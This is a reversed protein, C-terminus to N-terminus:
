LAPRRWVHLLTRPTPHAYRTGGNLSRVRVSDPGPVVVSRNDLWGWVAGNVRGLRRTKGQVRVAAQPVTGARSTFALRNGSPSWRSHVQDATTQRPPHSFHPTLRRLGGSAPAQVGRRARRPSTRDNGLGLSPPPRPASRRLADRFQRGSPRQPRAVLRARVGGIGTTNSSGTSTPWRNAAAPSAARGPALGTLLPDSTAHVRQM